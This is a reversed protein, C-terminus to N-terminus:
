EREGDRKMEGGEGREGKKKEISKGNGGRKNFMAGDTKVNQQGEWQEYRAQIIELETQLTCIYTHTIRSTAGIYTNLLILNNHANYITCKFTLRKYM